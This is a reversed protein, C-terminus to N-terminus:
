SPPHAWRCSVYSSSLIDFWVRKRLFSAWGRGHRLGLSRGDLFGSALEIGTRDEDSTLPRHGLRCFGGGDIIGGGSLHNGLGRHAPGVKDVLRHLVGMPSKSVPRFGRGHFPGPDKEAVLHKQLIFKLGQGLADRPFVSFVDDLRPSIEPAADLHKWAGQGNLVADLLFASAGGPVDEDVILLRNTRAVSQGTIGPRDFPLLTQADVLEM